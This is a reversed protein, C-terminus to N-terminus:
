VRRRRLALVASGLLVLMGCTPEPVGYARDKWWVSPIANDKLDQFMDAIAVEQYDLLSSYALVSCSDGDDADFDHYGLEVMFQVGEKDHEAGLGSSLPDVIWGTDDGVNLIDGPSESGQGAASAAVLAFCLGALLVRFKLSIVREKM